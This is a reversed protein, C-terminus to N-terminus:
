YGNRLFIDQLVNAVLFGNDFKYLGHETIVIKKILCAIM